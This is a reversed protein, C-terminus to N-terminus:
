APDDEALLEAVLPSQDVPVAGNILEGGGPLTALWDRAQRHTICGTPPSRGNEHNRYDSPRKTM